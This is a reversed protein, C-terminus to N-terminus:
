KPHYLYGDIILVRAPNGTVVTYNGITHAEGVLVQVNGSVVVVDGVVSAGMVHKPKVETGNLLYGGWLIFKGYLVTANVPSKVARGEILFYHGEYAVGVGDFVGYAVVKHSQVVYGIGVLGALIAIAALIYRMM